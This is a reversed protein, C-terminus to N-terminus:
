LGPFDAKEVLDHLQRELDDSHAYRHLDTGIDAAPDTFLRNRTDLLDLLVPPVLYPANGLLTGALAALRVLSMEASPTGRKLRIAGLHLTIFRHADDATTFPRHHTTM